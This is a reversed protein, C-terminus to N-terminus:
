VFKEINEEKSLNIIVVDSNFAYLKLESPKKGYRVEVVKREGPECWFCNDSLILTEEAEGFDLNVQFAPYEGCNEVKVTIKGDSYETEAKLQTKQERCQAIWPGNKYFVAKDSSEGIRPCYFSRSLLEDNQLLDVILFLTKEAEDGNIEYKFFGIDTVKGPYVYVGNKYESELLNFKSDYLRIRVECDSREEGTENAVFIKTKLTEGPKVCLDFGTAGIHLNELVRKKYYYARKPTGFSDIQSWCMTDPYPANFVWSLSVSCRPWRSRFWDNAYQLLMGHATQTYLVFEELNTPIGVDSMPAIMRSTVSNLHADHISFSSEKREAGKGWESFYSFDEMRDPFNLPWADFEEETMVKKLSSINIPSSMSYETVAPSVDLRYKTYDAGGQWNVVYSHNDGGYPCARHFEREPDLEEILISAFDILKKNEACDPNIENGGSWMVLSPHNRLRLINRRLADDWVNIDSMDYYGCSTCIDQWVCIGLEDCLDYFEDTEFIGGGWHRVINFNCEKALRLMREYKSKDFRYMQDIPMVNAGKAFFPRNNISFIWNYEANNLVTPVKEPLDPIYQSPSSIMRLQKIGTKFIIEDHGVSEKGCSPEFLDAEIKVDYLNQEGMGNPWWLRADKIEIIKTLRISGNCFGPTFDASFSKENNGVTIKGKIDYPWLAMNVLTVSVEVKANGGIIEKTTFYPESLYIKDYFDLWVNRWIGIPVIDMNFHWRHFIYPRVNNHAPTAACPIVCVLLENSKEYSIYENIELESGYMGEHYSIKHENIFVYYKYDIGEFVLRCPKGKKEKPITFDKKYVWIRDDVWISSQANYGIYPDSIRGAKLLSSQVSGPIDADIWDNIVIDEYDIDEKNLICDDSFDDYFLRKTKELSTIEVKQFDVSGSLVALATYRGCPSDAIFSAAEQGNIFVTIGDKKVEVRIKYEEGSKVGIETKCVEHDFLEQFVYFVLANEGAKFQLCYYALRFPSYNILIRAIGNEEKITLSTEYVYEEKPACNSYILAQFWDGGKRGTLIGDHCTWYNFTRYWKKQSSEISGLKWNDSFNIKNCSM